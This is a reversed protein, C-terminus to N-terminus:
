DLPKGWAISLRELEERPYRRTWIEDLVHPNKDLRELILFAEPQFLFLPRDEIDKYENFLSELKSSNAEVFGEVISQLRDLESADYLRMLDDLVQRSLELDYAEGTFRYFYQELNQLLGMSYAGPLQAIETSISAFSRDAIELLANLLYIQRRLDEPIPVAPKYSLEHDMTAWLNLCLTHVQVECQLDRLEVDDRQTTSEDKLRVDYHIGYYGVQNHGLAEAKDEKRLIQFSAEIVRLVTAIEHRYRVIVRAAAKDTVNEYKYQKKLIKKLLNAFGKTRGTVHALLGENRLRSELIQKVRELLREYVSREALWRERAAALDM